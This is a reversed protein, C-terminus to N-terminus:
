WASICPIVLSSTQLLGAVPPPGANSTRKGDGRVQFLPRSLVIKSSEEQKLAALYLCLWAQTSQTTQM